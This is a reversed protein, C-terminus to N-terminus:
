RRNKKIFKEIIQQSRKKVGFSFPKSAEDKSLEEISTIHFINSYYQQQLVDDTKKEVVAEPEKKEIYPQSVGAHERRTKDLWWMFTYPMKDDNYKSVDQQEEKVPNAGAHVVEPEPLFPKVTEAEDALPQESIATENSNEMETESPVSEEHNGFADDFMFFDTAAINEVILKNEEEDINAVPETQENKQPSPATNNLQIHEIGMIEDYVDDDIDSGKLNEKVVPKEIDAVPETRENVPGKEAVIEQVETIQQPDASHSLDILGPGSYSDEVTQEPEADVTVETVQSINESPIDANNNLQGALTGTDEIGTYVSAPEEKEKEIRYLPDTEIADTSYNISASM